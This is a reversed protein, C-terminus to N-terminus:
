NPQSIAADTHQVVAQKGAPFHLNNGDTINVFIPTVSRHLFDLFCAARCRKGRCVASFRNVPRIHVRGKEHRGPVIVDVKGTKGHPGSFIGAHLNAAGIRKVVAPFQHACKLLGACGAHQQFVAAISSVLEHNQIHHALAKKAFNHVALSSIPMIQAIFNGEATFVAMIAEAIVTRAATLIIGRVFEAGDCGNQIDVASVTKNRKDGHSRFRCAQMVIQLTFLSSRIVASLKGIRLPVNDCGDQFARATFCDADRQICRQGAKVGATEM